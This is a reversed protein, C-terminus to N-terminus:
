KNHDEQKPFVSIDSEQWGALQQLVTRINIGTTQSVAELLQDSTKMVDGVLSSANGGGYMVIKETRALPEAANKVLEPLMNFFMELVSAQGFQKQAEAKKLIAEAEAEGVLRIGEAEKTKAYLEADAEQRRRYNEAEATKRIEATLQREKISINIDELKGQQETKAIDAEVTAVEMSKRQEQEQIKYAADAAAKKIDAERKLESKRIEVDNNQKAIEIEAEARARNAEEDAKAQAIAVEKISNAKAIQASKRIQEINDIGLDKIVGNEDNFNQVTFNIIEIGMKSFEGHANNRVETAFKERDNILETLKMKGVIERLTGELVQRLISTIESLDRCLFMQAAKRIEEQSSSVKLNAVGDVSINIFEATPVAVETKINVQMLALSLKDLREFFPIRVTAKGIIIRPTKTIGSIIYAMDPPAKVYGIVVFTILVATVLTWLGYTLLMEFMINEM